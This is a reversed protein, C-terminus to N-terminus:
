LELCAFIMATWIRGRKRLCTPNMDRRSAVRSGRSGRPVARSLAHTLASRLTLHKSNPQKRTPAPFVHKWNNEPWHRSSTCRLSCKTSLWHHRVLDAPLKIRSSLLGTDHQNTPQQNTVLSSSIALRSVSSLLFEPWARYKHQRLIERAQCRLLYSCQNLQKNTSGGDRPQM